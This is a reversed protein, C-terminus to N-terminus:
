KRFPRDLCILPNWPHGHMNSDECQSRPRVAPGQQHNILPFLRSAQQHSRFISPGQLYRGLTAEGGNDTRVRGTGGGHARLDDATVANRRCGENFSFQTRPHAIHRLFEPLGFNFIPGSRSAM